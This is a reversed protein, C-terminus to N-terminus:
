LIFSKFNQILIIFHLIGFKCEVVWIYIVWFIQSMLAVEIKQLVFNRTFRMPILWRLRVAQVAVGEAAKRVIASLGVNVV